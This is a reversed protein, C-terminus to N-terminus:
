FLMGNASVERAGSSYVSKTVHRERLEHGKVHFQICSEGYIIGMIVALNMTNESNM